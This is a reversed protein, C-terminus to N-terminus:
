PFGDVWGCCSWCWCGCRCCDQPWLWAWDIVEGESKTLASEDFMSYALKPNPLGTQKQKHQLLPYWAKCPWRLDAQDYTGMSGPKQCAWLWLPGWGNQTLAPHGLGLDTARPLLNRRQAGEGLWGCTHLQQWQLHLELDPPLWLSLYELRSQTTPQRCNARFGASKRGTSSTCASTYSPKISSWPDDLTSDWKIFRMIWPLALNALHLMHSICWM